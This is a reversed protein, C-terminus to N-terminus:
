TTVWFRNIGIDIPYQSFLMKLKALRNLTPRPDIGFNILVSEIKSGDINNFWDYLEERVPESVTPMISLKDKLSLHIFDGSSWARLYYPVFSNKDYAPDFSNGAFASGHDILAVNGTEPEIMLNNGHRDSQACLADLVAWKHLLGSDRYKALSRIVTSPQAKKVKDLNKFTYPLMRIAAWEKNDIIVLQAEPISQQLGM